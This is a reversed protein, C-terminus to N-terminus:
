PRKFNQWHHWAVPYPFKRKKKDEEPEPEPQSRWSTNRFIGLFRSGIEFNRVNVFSDVASSAEGQHQGLINLYNSGNYDEDAFAIHGAPLSPIGSLVIVDGRRINAIGEVAIFPTVANRNKSVTWCEYAYGRSGTYLTLGYQHWLEALYDWCQNGYYGDVNYGNGLTAQKFQDYSDHPISIYGDYQHNM